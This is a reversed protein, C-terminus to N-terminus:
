HAHTGALQPSAPAIRAPTWRKRLLADTRETRKLAAVIRGAAQGDGYPNRLGRLTLRFAPDTARALGAAIEERRCAVDIVNGARLRGQQRTGVNVVPLGFSPAEILGSSSNGVMAAAHRMLSFYAEVGLSPVLRAQPQRSVFAEIRRRIVRHSTDANSGTFVVPRGASELAALLEQIQADAQDYELTVPHYTALLPAPALPLGILRELAPADLWRLAQLNDLAPAGSVTIRWPAEGMQELRQRAEDTAVFHLHSMMTIAYRLVNDIAGETAEGGHLHALPLAFPVSAVAAAHQEFRDGTVLVIDPRLDAYAEAFGQVAAGMSAAIAQPADAGLRCDVRAAVTWGDSEMVRVTEGFAPALHTGAAILQLRLGPEAQIARLVPLLIGYDSRGVSVVAITQM